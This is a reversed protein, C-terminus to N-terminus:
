NAYLKEKRVINVFINMEISVFLSLESSRKLILM